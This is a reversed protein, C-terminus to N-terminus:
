IKITVFAVDIAKSITDFDFGRGMLYNTIKGRIEFKDKTKDRRLIDNLKKIALLESTRVRDPLLYVEDIKKTALNEAIGKLKLKESIKRPGSKKLIQDRIFAECYRENSLFNRELFESIIKEIEASLEPTFKKLLKERFESVSHERKSLIKFGFDRPSINVM